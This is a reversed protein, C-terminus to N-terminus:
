SKRTTAGPMWSSQSLAKILDTGSKFEILEVDLGHDKYLGAEHALIAQADDMVRLYGIRFKEQAAAPIAFAVTTALAAILARATKM